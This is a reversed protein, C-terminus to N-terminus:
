AIGEFVAQHMKAIEAWDFREATRRGNAALRKGLARDNRLMRIAGAIAEGDAPPVLLGNKGHEITEAVGGQATAIVPTGAAMAEWIVKARPEILSPLVFADAERYIRPLEAYPIPPLTEVIGGLGRSRIIAHINEYDNDAPTGGALIFKIGEGKLLEAAHLLHPIGKKQAFRGAYLVTFQQKNKEAGSIKRKGASKKGGGSFLAFDVGSPVVKIKEEPIGCEIFERKIFEAVPMVVDVRRALYKALASFEVSDRISAIGRPSHLQASKLSGHVSLAFKGRMGRKAFPFLWGFPLPNTAHVVDAGFGSRRLAGMLRPGAFVRALRPKKVFSVKVKGHMEPERARKDMAFVAVDNGLRAQAESLMSYNPALGRNAERPFESVLRAIRMLQGGCAAQVAAFM